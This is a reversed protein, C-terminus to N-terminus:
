SYYGAGELINTVAAASAASGDAVSKEGAIMSSVEVGQIRLIDQAEPIPRGNVSTVLYDPRATSIGHGFVVPWQGFNKPNVVDQWVKQQTVWKRATVWRLLAFRLATLKSSAWQMYLWAPDKRESFNNMCVTWTWFGHEGKEGPNLGPLYTVGVKGVVSSTEPNEFAPTFGFTDPLIGSIGGSFDELVDRWIKTSSGPPGYKTVLDVYKQTGAISEPSDVISEWSDSLYGGGYTYPFAPYMIQLFGGRLSIGYFNNDPDNLRAATEELEDMTTPLDTIGKEEFIDARYFTGHSVADFPLAGIESGATVAGRVSPHVDEWDYWEIDTYDPDNLYGSLDQILGGDLWRPINFAASWFLDYNNSRSTLELNTKDFLQTEGLLEYNLKIGTLEEFEESLGQQWNTVFGNVGLINIQSGAYRTWDLSAAEYSVDASGEVARAAEVEVLQTVIKEVEITTVKEVEVTVIKEVTEGCAALIAAAGAALGASLFRRRSIASRSVCVEWVWFDPLVLLSEIKFFPSEALDALPM